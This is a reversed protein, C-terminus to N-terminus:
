PKGDYAPNRSEGSHRVQTLDNDGEFKEAELKSRNIVKGTHITAIPGILSLANSFRDEWSFDDGIM